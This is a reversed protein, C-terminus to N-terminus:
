WALLIDQFIQSFALNAFLLMYVWSNSSSLINLFRSWGLLGKLADCWAPSTGVTILLAIRDILEEKSKVHSCRQRLPSSGWFGSARLYVGAALSRSQTVLDRCWTLCSALALWILLNLTFTMEYLLINLSPSAFPLM